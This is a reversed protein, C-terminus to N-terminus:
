LTLMKLGVASLIVAIGSRLVKDPLKGGYYGGILVGPISGILLWCLLQFNVNGLLLHGSGAVLSLPIAHALDTGVLKASTLRFPYLFVLLVVGLAGAGISTFTVLFGLIAGSMVTFLSQFKLFHTPDSSRLKKGLQNLSPKLIMLLGTLVLVIALAFTFKGQDGGSSNTLHLWSLTVVASPLSGMALRRVVQWDVNDQARHIGVGFLKTVAAFLLDTGVATSPAVGLLLVLAPTMLAGGGVGTAGVMLGVVFGVISNVWVELIHGELGERRLRIIRGRPCLYFISETLIIISSCRALATQAGM